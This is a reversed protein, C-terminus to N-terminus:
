RGACESEMVGFVIDEVKQDSPHEDPAKFIEIAIKNFLPPAPNEALQAYYKGYICDVKGPQNSTKYYQYIGNIFGILLEAQKPSELGNFEKVTIAQVPASFGTLAIAILLILCFRSKM